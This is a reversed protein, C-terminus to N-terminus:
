GIVLAPRTLNFEAEILMQSAVLLEVSHDGNGDAVVARLKTFTATAGAAAAAGTNDWAGTAGVQIFDQDIRDGAELDIKTLVLKDNGDGLVVLTQWPTFGAGAQDIRDSDLLVLDDPTLTVQGTKGTGTNCQIVEFNILTQGNGFDARNFDGLNLETGSIYLYLTDGDGEGGDLQAFKMDDFSVSSLSATDNGSGLNIVDGVSKLISVTKPSTAAASDVYIAVSPGAEAEATTNNILGLGPKTVRSDASAIQFSDTSINRAADQLVLNVWSYTADLADVVMGTIEDKVENLTLGMGTLNGTEDSAGVLTV